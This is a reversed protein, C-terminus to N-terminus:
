ADCNATETVDQIGEPVSRLYDSVSCCCCDGSFVFFISTHRSTHRVTAREVTYLTRSGADQSGTLRHVITVLTLAHSGFPIQMFRTSGNPNLAHPDGACLPVVVSDILKSPIALLCAQRGRAM